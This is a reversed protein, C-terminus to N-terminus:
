RHTTRFLWVRRSREEGRRYVEQEPGRVWPLGMERALLRRGVKGNVRGLRHLCVDGRRNGQKRFHLYEVRAICRARGQQGLEFHADVHDESREAGEHRSLSKQGLALRGGSEEEQNTGAE